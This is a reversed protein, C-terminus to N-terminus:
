PRVMVQSSAYCVSSQHFGPVLAKLSTEGCAFMAGRAMEMLRLAMKM